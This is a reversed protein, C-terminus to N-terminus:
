KSEKVEKIWDRVKNVDGGAALYLAILYETVKDIAM